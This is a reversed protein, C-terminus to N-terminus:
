SKGQRYPKLAKLWRDRFQCISTFLRKVLLTEASATAAIKNFGGSPM